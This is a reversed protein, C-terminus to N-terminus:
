RASSYEDEMKVFISAIQGLKGGGLNTGYYMPNFITSRAVALAANAKRMMKPWWYIMEKLGLGSLTDLYAQMSSNRTFTDIIGGNMSLFLTPSLNQIEMSVNVCLPLFDSSWGYEDQGRSIQLSSVIGLPISVMGKSFARIVFPTTYASSGIARPLAFGMLLCLPIYISQFISVPDGYRSRLKFEFSVNGIRSESSKWIEPIELYGNGGTVVHGIDFGAAVSIAKTVGQKLAGFIADKWSDFTGEAAGEISKLIIRTTADQGYMEAQSRAESAQSNLKEALGAAGTTNRVDISPTIGKEVKFGIFTGSGLVMGRLASWWDKKRDLWTVEKFSRTQLSSKNESDLQMINQTNDTYSINGQDDSTVNMISFTKDRKELVDLTTDSNDDNQQQWL